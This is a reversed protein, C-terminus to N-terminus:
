AASAPESPYKILTTQVGYTLECSLTWKKFVARPLPPSNQLFEYTRLNLFGSGSTKPLNLSLFMESDALILSGKSNSGECIDCESAHDPAIEYGYKNAYVLVELMEFEPKILGDVVTDVFYPADKGSLIALMRFPTKEWAATIAWRTYSEHFLRVLEGPPCAALPSFTPM